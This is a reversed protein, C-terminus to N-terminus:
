SLIQEFIVMAASRIKESQEDLMRFKERWDQDDIHRERWYLKLVRETREVQQMAGDLRSRGAEDDNIKGLKVNRLGRHHEQGALAHLLLVITQEYAYWRRNLAHKLFSDSIAFFETRPKDCLRRIAQGESPFWNYLLGYTGYTDILQKASNLDVEIEGLVLDVRPQNKYVTLPIDSMKQLVNRGNATAYYFDGPILWYVAGVKENGDSAQGLGTLWMQCSDVCWAECVDSIPSITEQFFRDFSDSASRQEERSLAPNRKVNDITQRNVVTLPRSYLKPDLGKLFDYLRVLHVTDKPHSFPYIVVPHISSDRGRGSNHNSSRRQAVREGGARCSVIGLELLREFRLDHLGDFEVHNPAVKRSIGM